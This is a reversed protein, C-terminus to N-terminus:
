GEANEGSLAQTHQELIEMARIVGATIAESLHPVLPLLRSQGELPLPRGPSSMHVRQRQIQKARLYEWLDLTRADLRQGEEELAHQTRVVWQEVEHFREHQGLLEMLSRLVDEDTPFHVLYDELVRLLEAQGPEGYRALYGRTFAHVSQRLAATVATRRPEAWDSYLDDPLYVGQSALAYAREWFPLADDGYREMRCAQRVNWDLADVDIWILPYAGLAYSGGSDPSGAKYHVLARRCRECPKGSVYPPCLLGRLYWAANEVRKFPIRDEETPAWNVQIWDKALCRRSASVLMKLLTHASSLGRGNLHEGTALAYRAQAPSAAPAQLVEIRLEGCTFVRVLPVPPDILAVPLKQSGPDDTFAHEKHQLVM